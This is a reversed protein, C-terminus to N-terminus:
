VVVITIYKPSSWKELSRSQIGKYGSELVKPNPKLGVFGKTIETPELQDEEVFIYSLWDIKSHFSNKLLRM